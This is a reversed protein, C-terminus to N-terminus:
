EVTALIATTDDRLKFRPYRELDADSEQMSFLERVPDKLGRSKMLRYLDPVSEAVGFIDHLQCFGDSMIAAGSVCCVPWAATRAHPVGAGSPDFIWYGGPRNRLSRNHILLDKVSKRAEVMTCGTSGTLERMKDLVSHDLATLETEELSIVSGDGLEIVATVDGLGAYQLEDGMIRLISVGASPYDPADTGMHAKFLGDYEAKLTAAADALIDLLSDDTGLREHLIGMLGEALWAADSAANTIHAPTLMSAGDIVFLYNDGWGLRDEM